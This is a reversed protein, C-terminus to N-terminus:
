TAGEEAQAMFKKNLAIIDNLQNLVDTTNQAMTGFSLDRAKEQDNQDVLQRLQDEIAMRKEWLARLAIWKPKGEQTATAERRTIEGEVVKRLDAIQGEYTNKQDPTVSLVLNKEARVVLVVNVKLEEASELRAAPGQIVDHFASDLSSLSNIGVAAAIASLIIITTFAVALKLKITIRM